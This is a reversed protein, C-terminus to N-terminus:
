PPPPAPAPRATTAASFEELLALGTAPNSGAYRRARALANVQAPAVEALDDTFYDRVVALFEIRAAALDRLNRTAPDQNDATLADGTTRCVRDLEDSILKEAVVSLATGQEERVIARATRMLQRCPRGVLRLRPGRVNLVASRWEELARQAAAIANITAATPLVTNVAPYSWSAALVAGALAVWVRWEPLGSQGLGM